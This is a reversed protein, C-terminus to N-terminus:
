QGLLTKAATQPKGSVGLPSTLINAAGGRQKSLRDRLEQSERAADRTPVKPADPIKPKKGLLPTFGSLVGAATVAKSALSSGAAVEGLTPIAANAATATLASTASQVGTTALAAEAATM